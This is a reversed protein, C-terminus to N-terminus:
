VVIGKSTMLVLICLKCALDLYELEKLQAATVKLSSPRFAKQLPAVGLNALNTREPPITKVTTLQWNSLLMSFKPASCRIVQQDKKRGIKRLEYYSSIM